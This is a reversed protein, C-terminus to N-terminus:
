AFKQGVQEDTSIQEDTGVHENQAFKSMENMKRTNQVLEFM